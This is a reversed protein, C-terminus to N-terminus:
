YFRTINEPSFTRQNKGRIDQSQEAEVRHNVSTGSLLMCAAQLCFSRSCRRTTAPSLEALIFHQLRVSCDLVDSPLGSSMKETFYSRSEGFFTKHLMNVHMKLNRKEFGHTPTLTVHHQQLDPHAEHTFLASMHRSRPTPM